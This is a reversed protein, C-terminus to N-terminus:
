LFIFLYYQEMRSQGRGDDLCKRASFQHEAYKRLLPPQTSFDWYFFDWWCSNSLDHKKGGNQQQKFKLLDDQDYDAHIFAPQQWTNPKESIQM